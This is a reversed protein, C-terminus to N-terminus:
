EGASEMADVGQAFLDQIKESNRFTALISARPGAADRRV